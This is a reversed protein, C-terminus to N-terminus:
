SVWMRVTVCTGRTPAADIEFEHMMRKVGPLGLGLTGSTSFHDQLARELDAIGPGNDAAVIEIGGKGGKDIRNVSMVGKGAYKLINRALESAATMLRARDVANFGAEQALLGVFMVAQMLDVEDAVALRQEESRHIM